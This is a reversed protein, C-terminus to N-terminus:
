DVSINRDRILKIWYKSDADWVQQMGAAGSPSVIM